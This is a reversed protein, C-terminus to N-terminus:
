KGPLQKSAEEFLLTYHQICFGKSKEFKKIFEPERQYLYFLTAIYRQFTGEIRDCIYCSHELQDTYMKLPSKDEKKSFLGGQSRKGKRKEMEDICRDLHSLEMLALGLRNQQKYLQKIHTSCFGSQNTAIRVDDEMYSPGMTFDIANSELTKYMLCIPCESDADFADNVPITYLQEAM